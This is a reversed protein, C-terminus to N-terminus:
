SLHEPDVRMGTMVLGENPAAAPWAHADWYAIYGDRMEKVAPTKHGRMNQGLEYLDPLGCLQVAVVCGHHTLTNYPQPKYDAAELKAILDQSDM